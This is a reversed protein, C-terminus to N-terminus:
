NPREIEGELAEIFADVVQDAMALVVALAENIPLRGLLSGIDDAIVLATDDVQHSLLGGDVSLVAGPKSSANQAKILAGWYGEAQPKLRESLKGLQYAAKSKEKEVLM